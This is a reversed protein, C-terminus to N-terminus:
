ADKEIPTGHETLWAERAEAVVFLSGTVCIVDSSAARSQADRLASALDPAISTETKHEAALDALRALDAARPNHARTLVLSAAHPCLAAFMGAIDKDRSAGFVFHLRARPFVDLLTEVLQQTSDANHAGDLVIFPERAIIEFRGHWEVHALGQQIAADPIRIGQDRLVHLAALATAANTLQHKGLLGIQLGLTFLSLDFTESQRTLTFRQGDLNQDIFTVQFDADSVQFELDPSIAILPARNENAVREVVELAEDRQPASVAPINPKLIGAKERAIQALTDGLIATHDYSISTIVSVLPTVVNTADLRGGLGVELVALDVGQNAFCNFALATMVEFATLGPIEAALPKIKEIGAVVDSQAIMAGDVRIRERFTHLHPSTYLGARFRAARLVSEIMAATSGKGKTGAVHVCGFRRQPNGLAALLRDMRTLDFTKSSYDGAPTV